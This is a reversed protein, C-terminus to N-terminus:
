GEFIGWAMAGPFQDVRSAAATKAHAARMHGLHVAVKEDVILAGSGGIDFLEALKHALANKRVASDHEFPFDFAYANRGSSALEGGSFSM